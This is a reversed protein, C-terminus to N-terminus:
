FLPIHYKFRGLVPYHDSLDILYLTKGCWASDPDVTYPQLIAQMCVKFAQTTQLVISQMSSEVPTLYQRSYLVYDLWLPHEGSEFALPNRTPDITSQQGGTIEPMAVSLANFVHKIESQSLANGLRNINLDGAVIVAENKPIHQQTIFAMLQEAQALRVAAEKKGDWANLHTAFLHYTSARNKGAISQGAVSKNIRAYVVGKAALCDSGTCHNFVDQATFTIPWKSAIFVGGNSLSLSSNLTETSYPWGDHALLTRLETGPHCGNTFAEEIVIADINNHSAIQESIQAPIRCTREIQGDHSVIYPRNFINYTLVNFQNNTDTIKKEESSQAYVQLSTFFLCLFSSIIIGAGTM